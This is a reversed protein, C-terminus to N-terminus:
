SILSSIEKNVHIKRKKKIKIKPFAQNCYFRLLTRWNEIQAYLPANTEFCKSLDSTESTLKRFKDQYVKKKIDYIEIREPKVNEIELELDMFQTFHDSNNAKGGNKVKEFNTLVYKQDEDIVMKKVFPLVRNCVM